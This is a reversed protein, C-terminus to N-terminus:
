KSVQNNSEAYEHERSLSLFAVYSNQFRRSWRYFYGRQPRIWSKAFHLLPPGERDTERGKGGRKGREHGKSTPGKFCSSPRFSRQLSGWHPGLCLGGPRFRIQHVRFSDSLWQHCDNRINQTGHKVSFSWFKANALMVTLSPTEAGELDAM